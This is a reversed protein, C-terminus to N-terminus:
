KQKIIKSPKAINNEPSCALMTLCYCINEISWLVGIYLTFVNLNLM